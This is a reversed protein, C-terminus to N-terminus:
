NTFAFFEPRSGFSGSCGGGWIPEIGSMEKMSLEGISLEGVSLESVTIGRASFDWVKINKHTNKLGCFFCVILTASNDKPLNDQSQQKLM